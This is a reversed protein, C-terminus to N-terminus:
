SFKIKIIPSFYLYDIIATINETMLRTALYVKLKLDDTRKDAGRNHYLIM